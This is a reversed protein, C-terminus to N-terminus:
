SRVRSFEKLTRESKARLLQLGRQLHSKVTTVPMSLASAIEEPLLDEQYRLLVVVRQMEPLTAVLQEVRNALANFGSGGGVVGGVDRGDDFQEAAYEVRKARRRLADTARHVTARRLWALAHKESEIRDLSGHLQLFADQAIEEAMGTDAVIRFALSYIRGQHARVLEHFERVRANGACEGGPL